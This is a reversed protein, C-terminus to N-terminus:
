RRSDADTLPQYGAPRIGRAPVMRSVRPRHRRPLNWGGQSLVGGNGLRPRAPTQCEVRSQDAHAARLSKAYTAHSSPLEKLHNPPVLRPNEPLRDWPLADTLHLRHPYRGTLVAARTPSCVSSAAYANTFRMGEAALRDLRPTLHYDSGYVGPDAIGLDDTLIFIINPPRVGAACRGGV